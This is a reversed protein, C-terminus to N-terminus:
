ETIGSVYLVEKGSKSTELDIEILRNLTFNPIPITLKQMLRTFLDDIKCHIILDAYHDM